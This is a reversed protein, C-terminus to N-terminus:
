VPITVNASKGARIPRPKAASNIQTANADVVGSQSAFLALTPTGTTSVNGNNTIKLVAVAHAKDGAVGSTAITMRAFTESLAIFPAAAPASPGAPSDGKNGSPDIVRALLTYAGAALGGAANEVPLAASATKGNKLNVSHSAHALEISSSDIAGDTS